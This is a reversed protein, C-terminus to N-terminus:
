IRGEPRRKAHKRRRSARPAEGRRKAACARGDPAPVAGGARVAGREKGESGARSAAAGTAPQREGAHCALPGATERRGRKPPREHDAPSAKPPDGRARCQKGAGRWGGRRPAAQRARQASRKMKQPGRRFPLTLPLFLVYARYLVQSTGAQYLTKCREGKQAKVDRISQAIMIYSM